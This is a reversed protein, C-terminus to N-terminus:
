KEGFWLAKVEQVIDNLKYLWSVIRAKSEPMHMNGVTCSCQVPISVEYGGKHSM